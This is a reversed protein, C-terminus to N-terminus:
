KANSPCSKARAFSGKPVPLIDHLAAIDAGVHRLEKQVDLQADMIKAQVATMDEQQVAHMSHSQLRALAAEATLLKRFSSKLKRLGPLMGCLQSYGDMTSSIAAVQGVDPQQM